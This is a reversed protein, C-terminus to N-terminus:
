PHIAAVTRKVGDVFLRFSHSTNREPNLLPGIARSGSLKQYTGETLRRLEAAPNVIADPNRYRAKASLPSLGSVKLGAEVAPLDGFYWSELERCAIRVLAEPKSAKRCLGVLKEKVTECEASDQDRLVVFASKPTRWGRLRKMLQKELDQKGEFVVYQVFVSQPLIRPLMGRLMERASPEELLIVLTTM